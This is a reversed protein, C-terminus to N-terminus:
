HRRPYQYNDYSNDDGPGAGTQPFGGFPNPLLSPSAPSNDPNNAAEQNQRLPDLGPGPTANNFNNLEQSNIKVEGCALSQGSADGQHVNVWVGKQIESGLNDRSVTLTANGQGDSAVKGLVALTEGGCSGKDLTITYNLGSTLGQLTVQFDRGKGDPGPIFQTVGGVTSGNAANILANGANAVYDPRVLLLFLIVVGVILAVQFLRGIM